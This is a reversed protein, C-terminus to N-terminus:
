SQCVGTFLRINRGILHAVWQCNIYPTNPRVGGPTYTFIRGGGRTDCLHWKPTGNDHAKRTQTERGKNTRHNSLDVDTAPVGPTTYISADARASQTEPCTRHVLVIM